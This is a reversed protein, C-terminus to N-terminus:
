AKDSDPLYKSWDDGLSFFFNHADIVDDYSISAEDNNVEVPIENKILRVTEDDHNLIVIAEYCIAKRM